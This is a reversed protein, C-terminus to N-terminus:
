DHNAMFRTPNEGFTTAVCVVCVSDPCEYKYINNKPKSTARTQICDLSAVYWLHIYIICRHPCQPQTVCVCVCVAVNFCVSEVSTPVRRTNAPEPAVCFFFSKM